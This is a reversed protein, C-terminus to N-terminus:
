AGPREREPPTSAFGAGRRVLGERLRSLPYFTGRWQVGGRFLTRLASNWAAALLLLVSLPHLLTLTLARYGQRPAEVFYAGAVLVVQVVFPLWAAALLSPNVSGWFYISAFVGVGTPGFNLLLVIGTWLSLLPLSFGLGAFFNKELGRVVNLAGRHWPCRILGLGNFLRQRAGSEKLLRGLKIDDVLDMKLQQHGGIRDYSRRRVLNFAGVGIGGRRLDLDMEHARAALMFMQGFVAVLAAQVPPMPRLDPIVAVHDLGNQEAHNVVRVLLDDDTFRVDGDTFLIWESTSHTAGLHCAHCKGTWDDPLTKNRILRLRVGESAETEMKSVLDGTGDSSRDDVVIIELRPHRQRLLSRVTNEIQDAENCATVVVTLASTRAPPQETQVEEELVQALIRVKRSGMLVIRSSLAWLLVLLAGFGTLVLGPLPM